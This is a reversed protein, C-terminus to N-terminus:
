IDAGAAIAADIQQQTAKIVYNLFPLDESNSKRLDGTIAQVTPAFEVVDFNGSEIKAQVAFHLVGNIEKAVFACLGEQMTQIMPQSWKEVERNDIEVDVAIVKFLENRQHRIEMKDVIWDKLEGLKIREVNLDCLSKIQTLFSLIENISHLATDSILASKLLKQTYPNSPPCYLLFDIVDIANVEHGGFECCSIVSRTDMNVLNDYQTLQKIQGLTLWTFQEQPSIDEDIIIIINRNRKRLFRGGQESQLQDVLIQKPKANRFYDLFIPERGKHVQTYNSRTAQLTPALQVNNINGPEIKAQLLFHLIGKFKKTIIGLFGIEPQVIIPQQWEEKELFNCSIKIGEISFFRNSTHRILGKVEDYIWGDINKLECPVVSVEVDENQESMWSIVETTTKYEGDKSLASKLFLHKAGTDQLNSM